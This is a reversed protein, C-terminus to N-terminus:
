DNVIIQQVSVGSGRSARQLERQWYKIKNITDAMTLARGGISVSQGQALKLDAELWIDLHAQATVADIGAM